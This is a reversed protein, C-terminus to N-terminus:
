SAANARRESQELLWAFHASYKPSNAAETDEVQPLGRSLANFMWRALGVAIHPPRLAEAWLPLDDDEAHYLAKAVASSASWLNTLEQERLQLAGSLHPNPMAGAQVEHDEYKHHLGKEREVREKIQTFLSMLALRLKDQRAFRQVRRRIWRNKRRTWDAFSVPRRATTVWREIEHTWRAENFKCWEAEQSNDLGVRAAPASRAHETDKNLQLASFVRALLRSDRRASSCQVIARKSVKGQAYELWRAFLCRPCASPRGSELLRSFLAVRMRRRKLDASLGQTMQEITGATFYLWAWLTNRLVKLRHYRGISKDLAQFRKCIRLWRRIKWKNRLNDIRRWRMPERLATFCLPLIVALTYQSSLTLHVKIFVRVLHDAKRALLSELATTASSLLHTTREDEEALAATSQHEVTTLLQQQQERRKEQQEARRRLRVGREEVRHYEELFESQRAALRRTYIATREPGPLDQLDLHHEGAQEAAEGGGHRRLAAEDLRKRRLQMKVFVRVDVVTQPNRSPTGNDTVVEPDPNGHRERLLGGRARLGQTEVGAMEPPETQLGESVSQFRASGELDAAPDAEATQKEALHAMRGIAAEEEKGMGLVVYIAWQSLVRAYILKFGRLICYRKRRQLDVNVQLLELLVPSLRRRLHRNIIRTYADRRAATAVMSQVVPHGRWEAPVPLPPILAERRTLFEGVSRRRIITRCTWHCRLALFPARCFHSTKLRRYAESNIVMECKKDRQGVLRIRAVSRFLTETRVRARIARSADLKKRSAIASAKWIRYARLRGMGDSLRTTVQSTFDRSKLFERHWVHFPWFCGRFIAAEAFDELPEDQGDQPASRSGWAPPAIAISGIAGGRQVSRHRVLQAPSTASSPPADEAEHTSIDGTSAAAAPPLPTKFTLQQASTTDPRAPLPPLTGRPSRGAMKAAFTPDLFSRLDQTAPDLLAPASASPRLMTRLTNATQHIALRMEEPIGQQGRAFRSARPVPHYGGEM